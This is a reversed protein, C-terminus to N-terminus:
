LQEALSFIPLYLSILVFAVFVGMFLMIAPEILSLVAGMMTSVDEDYFEAVSTLMQPLAGTSEGVNIMEIALSPFVGTKALSQSLPQGERVRARAKDMSDRMLRSGLSESTTELATMLPIGGELLTSMLRCLQAVQYKAWITGYVPIKLKIRDLAQRANESRAQWIVLGIMVATVVAVLALHENLAVSFAVLYQTMMPLNADMSDYLAAFEPVVFTVLFIILVTVLVVLLTPYILSVLIKKRVALATKQYHVFRDIVEALSGSKEGAVLSTVYIPPFVEERRFAESLPVGTKVAEHIHEINERLQKNKINLRLLDLSKLIPLGARSLTVFQQNFILFQEVNIKKSSKKDAADQKAPRVSYVLYGDRGYRQRLEAESDAAEVREHVAGVSDAYKLLFDAV